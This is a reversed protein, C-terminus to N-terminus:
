GINNLVYKNGSIYTDLRMIEMVIEKRRKKIRELEDDENNKIEMYYNNIEQLEDENRRVKDEYVMIEKEIEKKLNGM